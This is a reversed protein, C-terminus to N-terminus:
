EILTEWEAYLETLKGDIIGYEEYDSQEPVSEGQEFLKELDAKAQELFSIEEELAKIKAPLNDNVAPKAPKKQAKTKENVAKAPANKSQQYENWNGDFVTLRKNEMIFLKNVCTNLFSRDHSVAIVSGPFQALAEEVAERAPLDLHNTPEDLILCQPKDLM